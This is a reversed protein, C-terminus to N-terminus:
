IIKKLQLIYSYRNMKLKNISMQLIMSLKKGREAPNM